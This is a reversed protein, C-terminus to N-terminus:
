SIAFSAINPGSNIASHVGLPPPSQYLGMLQLCSNDTSPFTEAKEQSEHSDQAIQVLIASISCLWTLM